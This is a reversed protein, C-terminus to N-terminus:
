SPDWRRLSVPTSEPTRDFNFRLWSRAVEAVFIRGEADVAVDHPAVLRADGVHRDLVLRERGASDLAVLRNGLEAVDRQVGGPGLEAILLLDAGDYRMPVAACPRHCHWQGLATGDLDFFQLRFNERDSVVLADEGVFRVHHPLSFTGLAGGPAGWSGLHVGSRDFRHVRSNGYGDAVFLDGSVPHVAVSTPRNFVGGGQWPAPSGPSGLTLLLEGDPSRKQVTHDFEDVLYLDGFRDVTIGHPRQFEGAGWGRLQRGALDLQRVPTPGRDFVWITGDPGVAVSATDGTLPEGESPLPWGDVPRYRGTGPGGAAVPGPGALGTLLPHRPPTM